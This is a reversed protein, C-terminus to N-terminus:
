SRSSGGRKRSGRRNNNNNNNNNNINTTDEKTDPDEDGWSGEAGAPTPKYNDFFKGMANYANRFGTTAARGINVTDKLATNLGKLANTIGKSLGNSIEDIGKSVNGSLIDGVGRGLDKIIGFASKFTNVFADIWSGIAKFGAGIARFMDVIAGTMGWVAGAVVQAVTRFVKSKKGM